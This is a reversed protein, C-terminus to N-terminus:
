SCAKNLIWKGLPVILNTEEALKIFQDPRVFGLTSSNWRVLAEVAVIKSSISSIKPQYLLIFEDCTHVANKMAEIWRMRERLVTSLEQTFFSFNNRGSKKSQYMALDANKILSVSDEGNDPYISIGISASTHITHDDCLFPNVFDNLVKQLINEVESIQKMNEVLIYFEDGGIRAFTDVSRLNSGLRKAVERLLEDGIDHGLSDNVEKFDDLDLFIIALKTKNRSAVSIAHELINTFLRRNPLNTLSDHNSIYELNDQSKQLASERRRITAALNNINKSIVELEDGSKLQATQSYDRQEIKDIQQMLTELPQALGRRLIFRVLVLFFISVVFLIFFLEITNQALKTSLTSKDLSLVFYVMNNITTLSMVALYEKDTQTVVLKDHSAIDLLKNANQSYKKDTSLTIQVSLRESLASFYDRGELSSLEIHAVIEDHIDSFISQHSKIYLEEEYVHYTIIAQKIAEEDSYYSQHTQAILPYEKCSEKSYLAENEYKCYIVKQSNEYSIFHQCYKENEKAVYAILEENKDYLAIDNNLSLKVRELLAEAIIKKEEDLLATNYNQKDQYNNILEVSALLREDDKIFSIGQKLEQETKILNQAMRSYAHLMRKKTNEFDNEKLFSDFYFGLVGFSTLIVVMVISALKNTLKFSKYFENM